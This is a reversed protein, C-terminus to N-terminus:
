VAKDHYIRIPQLPADVVRCVGQDGDFFAYTGTANFYYGTLTM